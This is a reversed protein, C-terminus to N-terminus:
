ANSSDHLYAVPNDDPDVEFILLAGYLAVDTFSKPNDRRVPPVNSHPRFVAHPWDRGPSSVVVTM